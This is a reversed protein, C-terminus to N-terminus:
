EGFKTAEGRFLLSYKEYKEWQNLYKAFFKAKYFKQYSNVEGEIKQFASEFNSYKKLWPLGTLIFTNKIEYIVDEINQGDSHFWWINDKERKQSCLEMQLQCDEYKPFKEDRHEENWLPPIFDFYIGVMANLSQAPWGSLESDYKGVHNLHFVWICEKHFAYYNRCNMSKFGYERLIPSLIRKIRRDVKNRVM